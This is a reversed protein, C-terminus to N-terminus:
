NAKLWQIDLVLFASQSHLSSPFRHFCLHLPSKPESVWFMKLSASPKIVWVSRWKNIKKQQYIGHMMFGPLPVIASNQSDSGRYRWHRITKWNEWTTNETPQEIGLSPRHSVALPWMMFESFTSATSCLAPRWIEHIYFLSIPHLHSTSPHLVMKLCVLNQSAGQFKGDNEDHENELVESKKSCSGESGTAPTRSNWAPAELGLFRKAQFFGTLSVQIAEVHSMYPKFRLKYM